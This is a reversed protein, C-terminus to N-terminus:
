IELVRLPITWWFWVLRARLAPLIRAGTFHRRGLRTGLAALGRAFTWLLRALDAPLQRADALLLPLHFHFQGVPLLAGDLVHHQRREPVRVARWHRCLLEHFQEEALQGVEELAFGFEAGEPAGGVRPCFQELTQSVLIEAVLLQHRHLLENLGLLAVQEVHQGVDGVVRRRDRPGLARVMCPHIDIGIEVGLLLCEEVKDEGM